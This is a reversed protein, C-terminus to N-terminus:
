QGGFWGVYFSFVQKQDYPGQHLPVAFDLAIPMPGMAPVVIRLGAGVAVRYNTIEVSREVTGHDVFAVLWLKDSALVPFQYELSNLFAFTGGVNLQNEYPGVGRFTFGRLSRFGGAFFREFVPANSGAVALQTRSALVQKGSGDKRQFLTMYKSFEATGIPFQYSGFVQEYGIDLVSGKTPLLYSDRTDRNLGGRLGLVFSHGAYNTIAPSAWYPINSINVDEARVSANARWILNDLFRYDVTARGGVRGETYEAYSRNFYYLSNTLGFRSDFLYPERWTIAYRQFITGPMAEIRMEQGGGRFAKGAFLDDLSTPVRLIDFNRQNITLTGNLGANSNVNAALAVMGTRTEKVRVRIDKYISDFEQPLVEVTPPSEQDFLNLRMLNQKAQELKPYQLIQGPYLGLQNLIVRQSTVTNGEIIIRGVRDKEQSPEVVQYHVNVVAPKGPVAFVGERAAVRIGSNGYLNEIRKLDAQVIEQDYRTGVKLHTVKKLREDTLAKNGDIHVAAVQYAPGEDIYYVLKVQSLDKPNPVVSEHIRVELYGLKHYYDIIRKKDEEIMAPNYKGTLMTVFGPILPGSSVLQTRLRGTSAANNGVFEIGGIRVVRGEVIQFVVRTDSLKGGELLTVSAYYRGDERLKNLIDRAARENNAPNLPGGRRIQTIDFLESESLHQAGFYIVERVINNLEIVHVFVTVQGDSGVLTDIRVGGPAFWKTNLLRRVDEQIVAEDYPKGPRTQMQALILEPQHVKNNVPIIRAVTKGVPSVAAKVGLSGLVLVAALALLRLLLLPRRVPM